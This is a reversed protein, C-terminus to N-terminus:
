LRKITNEISEASLYLSEISENRIRWLFGHDKIKGSKESLTFDLFIDGAEILKLFRLISPRKCYKVAGITFFEEGDKKLPIVNIFATQSHKTLLADELQEADYEMVKEGHRIVEVTHGDVVLNFGLTDPKSSFSTYLARRDRKEDYSSHEEFFAAKGNDQEYRSPVRSFMTQLTKGHKTKLEIGMFDADKSSNAEIGLAQELALGFRGSGKGSVKIRGLKSLKSFLIKHPEVAPRPSRDLHDLVMLKLLRQYNHFPKLGDCYPLHQEYLIASINQFKREFGKPSRDFKSGLNRYLEAKNTTGGAQQTELLKFYAEVAAKVEQESWGM